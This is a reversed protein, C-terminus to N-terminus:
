REELAKEAGAHSVSDVPSSSRNAEHEGVSREESSDDGEGPGLSSLCFRASFSSFPHPSIDIWIRSEFGSVLPGNLGTRGGRALKEKDPWCKFHSDM